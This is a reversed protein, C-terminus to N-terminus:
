LNRVVHKVISAEWDSAAGDQVGDDLGKLADCEIAVRQLEEEDLGGVLGENGEEV